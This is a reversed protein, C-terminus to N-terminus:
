LYRLFGSYALWYAAYAELRWKLEQKWTVAKLEQWPKGWYHILIYLSIFGKKKWKCQNSFKVVISGSTPGNTVTYKKRIGRYKLPRCKQSTNTTNSEWKYFWFCLCSAVFRAETTYNTILCQLAEKIFM